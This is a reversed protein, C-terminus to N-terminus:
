QWATDTLVMPAHDAARLASETRPGPHRYSLKGIEQLRLSAAYCLAAGALSGTATGASNEDVVDVVGAAAYAEVFVGLWAATAQARHVAEPFIWQLMPDTAFAAAVTARVVAVGLPTADLTHVASM